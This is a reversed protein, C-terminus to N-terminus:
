EDFLEPLNGSRWTSENLVRPYRNTNAITIGNLIGIHAYMHRFQSLALGLRTGICGHPCESLQPDHLSSVYDLVKKRVQEYYTYLTDRGLVTDSPNDPYDLGPTHFAPEPETNRTGPNIFWKDASHLTHYIYRWAPAGCIGADWDVTDMAIRLNYFMLDASTKIVDTNSIVSIHTKQVQNFYDEALIAYQCVDVFGKSNKGAQRLIGEYMMGCKKMVGGSNQNATDHRGAIRNIGVETFLYKIVAALAESTFGMHWWARGIFFSMDATSVREDLHSVAIRGIPEYTDRKVIVWNYCDLNKYETGYQKM